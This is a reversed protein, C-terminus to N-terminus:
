RAIAITPPKKGIPHIVANVVIYISNVPRNGFVLLNLESIEVVAKALSLPIKLLALDIHDAGPLQNVCIIIVIQQSILFLSALELM